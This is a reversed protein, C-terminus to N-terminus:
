ARRFQSDNGDTQLPRTEPQITDPAVVDDIVAADDTSAAELFFQEARQQLSSIDSTISLTLVLARLWRMYKWGEPTGAAKITVEPRMYVAGVATQVATRVGESGRVRFMDLARQIESLHFLIFEQVDSPLDAAIIENRLSHVQDAIEALQEAAIERPRHASLRSIQDAAMDLSLLAYDSLQGRVHDWSLNLALQSFAAEVSGKWALLLDHNANKLSRVESEAQAPLALVDAMQRYIEVVEGPPTMGFLRCWGDRMALNPAIDRARRLFACLRGAASDHYM